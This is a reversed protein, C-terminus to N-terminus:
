QKLKQIKYMVLLKPNGDNLMEADMLNHRVQPPFMYSYKCENM